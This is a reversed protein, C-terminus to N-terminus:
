CVFQICLLFLMKGRFTKSADDSLLFIESKFSLFFIYLNEKLDNKLNEDSHILNTLHFTEEGKHIYHFSSRNRFRFDSLTM